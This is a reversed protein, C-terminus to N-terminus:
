KIKKCSDRKILECPITLKQPDKSTTTISDILLTASEIGVQYPDQKIVSIPVKFHEVMPIEDFGLLSIDDPIDLNLKKLEKIVDITIALHQSFIASPRSVHAVIESLPQQLGNKRDWLQIMHEDKEIGYKNLAALYGQYREERSRIGEYKQTVFCIKEHGLKILYETGLFAAERYDSLVINSHCEDYELQFQVLPLGSKIYESIVELNKGSSAIIIGDVRLSKLSQLARAESEANFDTNYIIVNYESTKCFDDIGRLVRSTDFGSIDRVIVGITKTQDTKLSRAIPNPVYDLEKIASEIRTRTKESMYNLRGNLFQSVTSKSVGAYEAVDILKIKKMIIKIKQYDMGNEITSM